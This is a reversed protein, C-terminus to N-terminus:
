TAFALLAPALGVTVWSAHQDDRTHFSRCVLARQTTVSAQFDSRVIMANAPATLYLCRSLYTKQHLAYFTGLCCALGCARLGCPSPARSNSGLILHINKAFPCARSWPTYPRRSIPPLETRLLLFSCHQLLRSPPKSESSLSTLQRDPVAKKWLRNFAEVVSLALACSM